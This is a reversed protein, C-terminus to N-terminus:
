TQPELWVNPARVRNQRFLGEDRIDLAETSGVWDSADVSGNANTDYWLTVQVRCHQGRFAAMVYHGGHVRRARVYQADGPGTGPGPVQVPAPPCAKAATIRLKEPEMPEGDPTSVTFELVCTPSCGLLAPSLWLVWAFVCHRPRPMHRLTRYQFGAPSHVAQHRFRRLRYQTAMCAGEDGGREREARGNWVSGMTSTLGSKPVSLERM